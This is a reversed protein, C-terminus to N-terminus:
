WFQTIPRTEFNDIAEKHQQYHQEYMKINLRCFEELEPEPLRPSFLIVPRQDQDAFQLTGDPFMVQLIGGLLMEVKTIFPTIKSQDPAFIHMVQDTM